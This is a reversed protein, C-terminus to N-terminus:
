HLMHEDCLPFTPHLVMSYVVAKRYESQSYKRDCPIFTLVTAKYSRCFLILFMKLTQQNYNCGKFNKFHKELDRQLRALVDPPRMQLIRKNIKKIQGGIFFDRKHNTSSFWKYLLTKTIGLLCGHMYDPVMGLVIDFWPMLALCTVDFLGAVKKKSQNAKVANELFTTMTRNPARETPSRYPYCRTHGKGQAAVFGSEECTLCGDEGNHQTMYLLYSKGQLDTSGLLVAAKVGVGLIAVGLIFLSFYVQKFAHRLCGGEKYLKNMQTAFPEFFANFPPKGKGQWIGWLMMNTKSFRDPSPLENIALFVPWLSVSSSSYLPAGDTNFIFSINSIDSLFQGPGCLRTYYKGDIIDTIIEKGRQESRAQITQWIGERELLCKLQSFIDVTVFSNKHLKKGQEHISGKYRLGNCGTTSCVVQDEVNTPFLGLCNECIDYTFVTCNGCVEQVKSYTLSQLLENAPCLLKLLDIIDKAAETTICHRAILSLISM